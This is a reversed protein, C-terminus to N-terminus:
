WAWLGPLARTYFAGGQDRTRVRVRAFRNGGALWALGTIALQLLGAGVIAVVLWVSLYFLSIDSAMAFSLLGVLVMNFVATSVTVAAVRHEAYLAASLM